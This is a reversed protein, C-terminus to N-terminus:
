PLVEQLIKHKLTAPACDYTPTRRLDAIRQEHQARVAQADRQARQQNQRMQATQEELTTVAANQSAVTGELTSVNTKVEVLEGQLTALDTKLARGHLVLLGIVILAVAAVSLTPNISGAM